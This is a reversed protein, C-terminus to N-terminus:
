SIGNKAAMTAHCMTKSRFYCLSLWMDETVNNKATSSGSNTCSLVYFAM